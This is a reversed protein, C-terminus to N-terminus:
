VIIAIGAATETRARETAARASSGESRSAASLWGTTVVAECLASALAASRRGSRGDGGLLETAVTDLREGLGDVEQGEAHDRLVVEVVALNARAAHEQSAIVAVVHEQEDVAVRDVLLPAARRVEPTPRANRELEDIVDLHDQPRARDQVARLGHQADDVDHGLARLVELAEVEDALAVEERGLAGGDAEPM